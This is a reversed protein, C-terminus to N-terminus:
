RHRERFAQDVDATSLVGFITGDDEILLYEYAPLFTIARILEEGAIGAPLTMGPVLTRAVSGVTLWPRRDEPTAQVAAESVIGLPRGTADVTVISGAEADQARRVAEAVPLDEPVTLTRRALGRAVLSPLRRRLRASQIAASAGMWIFGALIFAFLYSTLDPQTDLLREMILPLFLVLVATVRGCWGAVLTGQHENRTVGWVLAKLIRGGDLPLGPILNFVGLVLNAWALIIVTLWLLGDPMALSLLWALGAVALSAIPGVVSMVFEERASRPAGDVGTHGGLFHLTISDVPHGYHRSAFAHSAEHVLITLAYVIAIVLGAVYKLGGLGPQHEEITPAMLWAILAALVFWSTTLLVDVGGLSGVRFTGPPRPRKM